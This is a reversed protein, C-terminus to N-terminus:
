PRPPPPARSQLRVLVDKRVSSESDLADVLEAVRAAPRLTRHSLPGTLRIERAPRAMNGPCPASSHLATRATSSTRSTSVAPRLPPARIRTPTAATFACRLAATCLDTIRPSRDPPTRPTPMRLELPAFALAPHDPGLRRAGVSLADFDFVRLAAAPRDFTQTLGDRDARANKERRKRSAGLPARPSSLQQTAEVPLAGAPDCPHQPQTPMSPDRQHREGTRVTRPQSEILAVRLACFMPVPHPHLRELRRGWGPTVRATTPVPASRARVTQGYPHNLHEPGCTCGVRIVGREHPFMAERPGERPPCPELGFREIRGRSRFFGDMSDIKSMQREHRDVGRAGTIVVVRHTRLPTGRRRRELDDTLLRSQRGRPGRLAM